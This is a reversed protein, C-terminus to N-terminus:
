IAHGYTQSVKVPPGQHPTFMLYVVLHHVMGPPTRPAFEPQLQQVFTGVKDPDGKFNEDLLMRNELLLKQGVIATLNGDINTSSSSELTDGPGHQFRITKNFGVWGYSGSAFRYTVLNKKVPLGHAELIDKVHRDDISDLRYRFPLPQNWSHPEMTVNDQGRGDVLFAVHMDLPPNTPPVTIEYRHWPDEWPDEEYESTHPLSKVLIAASDTTQAAAQNGITPLLSHGHPFIRVLFLAVGSALAIAVAIRRNDM